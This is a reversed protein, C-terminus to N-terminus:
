WRRCCRCPKCHPRCCSCHSPWRPEQCVLAISRRRRRCRRRSPRLRPRRPPRWRHCPRFPRTGAIVNLHEQSAAASARCWESRRSRMTPRRRGTSRRRRRCRRSQPRPQRPFHSKLAARPTAPLPPAPPPAPVTSTSVMPASIVLPSSNPRSVPGISRRHRRCHHSQRRRSRKAQAGRDRGANAAGAAPAAPSGPTVTEFRLLMVM